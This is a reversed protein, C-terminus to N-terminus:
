ESRVLKLKGVGNADRDLADVLDVSVPVPAAGARALARELARGVADELDCAGARAVVCARLGDAGHVVQYQRVGDLKALPSRLAIPHVAVSGEGSAAPLRLIDDSRGAVSRVTRFPQGCPCPEGDLEVLDTIEYRIVPQTKMFLNTILLREPEVEVITMDEGFHIGRHHACSVGWLGDTAGYAEHPEVGWAARIRERMEDTCVESTTSIARPAIHLTGALQEDALLSAISPYAALAGPQFANLKEVMGALPETAELRLRRFAGVNMTDSMRRTMHLPSPASVFAFRMRPLQPRLGIQRAVRQGFALVHAWEARSYVFVGRRGSSGGTAMARYEDLLYDDRTLSGLHGDVLSGTLRRDTCWDDFRAMLEDKTVVPLADLEVPKSLDVDALREAYFPSREAAWRVVSQLERRQHEELAGRSWSERERLRRELGLGRVADRVRKVEYAARM